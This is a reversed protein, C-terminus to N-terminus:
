LSHVTQLTQVRDNCDAIVVTFTTNWIPDKMRNIRISEVELKLAESASEAKLIHYYPSYFCDKTKVIRDFNRQIGEMLPLKKDRVRAKTFQTHNGLFDYVRYKNTGM